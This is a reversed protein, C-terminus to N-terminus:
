KVKITITETDEINVFPLVEGTEQNIGDKFVKKLETKNIEEKVRILEPINDNLYKTLAEENTYNWTKSKRASVNGYPTSLKFKKDKTKENRYYEELLFNFYQRDAEYQKLEADKWENIRSIEEDAIAKIEVQKNEIARLKRFAWTAGELDEIKFGEREQALDNEILLNM